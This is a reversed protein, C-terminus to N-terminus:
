KTLNLDYTVRPIDRLRWTNVKAYSKPLLTVGSAQPQPRAPCIHCAARLETKNQLTLLVRSTPPVPWTNAKAYSKPLFTVSHPKYSPSCHCACTKRIQETMGEGLLGM